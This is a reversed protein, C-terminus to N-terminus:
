KEVTIKVPESKLEYAKEGDKDSITYKASLKYEGPGTWYVYRGAGRAGDSLRKVPIEHSKGPALTVAKPLRFELTMALGSGLSVTGDGGTLDFTWTNADGGVYITVEDKSTNVIELVLDVAPPRPPQTPKGDKQAQAIEELYKKFEAPVTGSGFKYKDTKAVLKLKVPPEAKKDEGSASVAFAILAVTAALLKM